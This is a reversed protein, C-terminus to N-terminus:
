IDHDMSAIQDNVIASRKIRKRSYLYRRLGGSIGGLLAGLAIITSAYLILVSVTLSADPDDDGSGNTLASLEVKHFNFAWYAVNLWTVCLLIIAVAFQGKNKRPYLFKHIVIVPVFFLIAILMCIAIRDDTDM